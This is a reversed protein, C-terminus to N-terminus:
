ITLVQMMVKRGNLVCITSIFCNVFVFTAAAQGGDADWVAHGADAVSGELIAAAQGGMLM